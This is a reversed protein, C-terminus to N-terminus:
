FTTKLQSMRTYIAAFVFLFITPFNSYSFIHIILINHFNYTFALSIRIKLYEEKIKIKNLFFHLVVCFLRLIFFFTKKFNQTM